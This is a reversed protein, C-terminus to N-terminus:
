LLLFLLEDLVEGRRFPLDGPSLRREDDDRGLDVLQRPRRLLWRHGGDTPLKRRAGITEGGAGSLTTVFYPVRQSLRNDRVPLIQSEARLRPRSLAIHVNRKRQSDVPAHKAATVKPENAPACVRLGASGRNAIGPEGSEAEAPCFVGSRPAAFFAFRRPARPSDWGRGPAGTAVNGPNRRSGSQALRM